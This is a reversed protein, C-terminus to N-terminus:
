PKPPEAHDPHAPPEAEAIPEVGAPPLASEPVEDLGEFNLTITEHGQELAEDHLGARQADLPDITQDETSEYSEADDLAVASGTEPRRKRYRAPGTTVPRVVKAKQRRERRAAVIDERPAGSSSQLSNSESRARATISRDANLGARRKEVAKEMQRKRFDLM